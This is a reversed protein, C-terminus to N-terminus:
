RVKGILKKDYCMEASLTKEIGNDFVVKLYCGDSQTVVGLGFKVHSVSSGIPYKKAYDVKEKVPMNVKRLSSSPKAVVKTQVSEKSSGCILDIDFAHKKLYGKDFEVEEVYDLLEIDQAPSGILKVRTAIRKSVYHNVASHVTDAVFVGRFYYDKGIEKSFILDYTWTQKHMVDPERKRLDDFVHYNGDSCIINLCDNVSPVFKGQEIHALQTFWMRFCTNKPHRNPWCAQGWYRYNTGACWNIAEYITRFPKRENVDIIRTRESM